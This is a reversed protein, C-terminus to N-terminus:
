HAVTLSISTETISDRIRMSCAVTASRPLQWASVASLAGHTCHDADGGPPRPQTRDRAPAGTLWKRERACIMAISEAFAHFSNVHAEPKMVLPCNYIAVRM